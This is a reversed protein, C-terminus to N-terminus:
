FAFQVRVVLGFDEARPARVQEMPGRNKAGARARGSLKGNGGCMMARSDTAHMARDYSPFM